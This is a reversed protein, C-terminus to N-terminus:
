KLLMLKKVKVFEDAVIRYFYVGSAATKEHMDKGNWQVTYRGAPKKGDILISILRGQTNFIEIKVNSTKPLAYNIMTVPNFPNPYNQDLSFASPLNSITQNEIGTTGEISIDDIYWKESNADCDAIFQFKFNENLAYAPLALSHQTYTSLATTEGPIGYVEIWYTGDYIKIILDDGTNTNDNQWWFILNINQGEFGGLNITNSEVAANSNLELSYPPSPENEGNSNIVPSGSIVTWKAPNLTTTEFQESWGTSSIIELTQQVTNDGASTIQVSATDSEGMTVSGPIQVKTIFTYANGASVSPIQTIQNTGSEDWITTPWENGSININYSDANEGSNTLTCSSELTQAPFGSQSISVSSLSFYYDMVGVTMDVQVLLESNSPDNSAIVLYNSYTTDSKLDKANMKVNINASSGSPVTGSNPTYSLWNGAGGGSSGAFVIANYLFQYDVTGPDSEPLVSFYVRNEKGVIISKKDTSIAYIQGDTVLNDWNNSVPVCTSNYNSDYPNPINNFLQHSTNSIYVQYATVGSGWNYTGTPNLGVLGALYTVHNQTTSEDYNNFTGASIYLGHGENIYQAVAMCENSTLYFNYGSNVGGWNDSIILMDAGSNVLDQYTINDKDLTTYDIVISQSGYSSYSSNLHNWTDTASSSYTGWGDLVVAKIVDSTNITEYKRITAELDFPESNTTLSLSTSQDCSGDSGPPSPNIIKAYENNNILIDQIEPATSSTTRNRNSIQFTLESGGKNSITLIQTTSDDINVTEDFSDPSVEIRPPVSILVDDIFWKDATSNAESEFKIKFDSQCAFSPIVVQKQMFSAPEADNGDHRFLEVWYSGEYCKVVLDDDTETGINQYYYSLAVNTYGSLDITKTEVADGNSTGGKLELSYPTSPESNGGTSVSPTGSIVTWKETDLTTAPFDEFWPLVDGATTNVTAFNSVSSNGASTATITATDAQEDPASEPVIVLVTIDVTGGPTLPGVTSIQATQAANWIEVPWSNGSVTLAYSDSNSGLNTITFTYAATDGPAATSSQEEPDFTVYYPAMTVTLHVPVNLLPNDPDNSSLAMRRSYRNGPELDKANIKLNIDASSGPSVNGSNPTYSLWNATAEGGSSGAFVIANYLFQYESTTPSSAPLFSAYVRNQKTIVTTQNNSSIAIIEGDTLASNWNNGTPVTTFSSPTFGGSINAALPHSSNQFSIFSASPGSSWNYSLSSNLGVLEALNDIQPQVYSNSNFTGSSMYLGHGENVYQVVAQCESTNLYFLNSSTYYGWNDPILLVDAGSNVLDQYTINDKALTTYDILIAQSGYSSYNSNLHNWASVGGSSYTGWGDLVVAKIVDSANITEYKKITTELDFPELSNTMSLPAARGSSGDMGAPDPPLTRSHLDNAKLVDQIAPVIPNNNITYDSIQFELNGAGINGITLTQATSDGANLTVDFSDPTVTIEPPAFLSVDDVFWDDFNTKGSDDSHYGAIVHFRIQFNTHYADEPLLVQDYTYSTMDPGSGPYVKLYVWDGVNNYYSIFLDDGAEPSDGGGTRQYYYGLAIRTYSSLDIAQSHVEDGVTTSGDLNLSYSASPEGMGSSNSTAPGINQIWKTSSLTSSPFNDSWPLTAGNGLSATVVKATGSQSANGVSTARVNVSDKTGNGAGTPVTVKVLVKYYSGSPISNLASIQGTGNSDWLTTTWHQGTVSLNYSDSNQGINRVFVPCFTAKGKAGSIEKRSPTLNVFYQSLAPTNQVATYADMKGYGWAYNPVSGTYSDSRASNQLIQKVQDSTLTPNKQLILAVCGAVHPASMSTGPMMVHVYDQNRYSSTMYDSADASLSSIVGFGSGAIEPKQRGTIHGPDDRTPGTSSFYALGNLVASSFSQNSGNYAKWSTKTSYAAVTIAKDAVGPSGVIEENSGSASSFYAYKGGGLQSIPIWSDFHGGQSITNGKVTVQWTGNKPPYYSYGDWIQIYCERDGNNPDIGGSANDIYIAGDSTSTANGSRDSGTDAYWTYGNPSTVTVRNKDNGQYWLTIIIFDNGAGSYSSYSPVKVEITKEAGNSVTGEAHIYEAYTANTGENGASITIVKGLGVIRDIAQETLGSGDHPGWQGGLSMNFSLAKGLEDAKVAAYCIADLEETESFGGDGSAANAGRVMLIDAEPAMGVYTHAPLSGGTASGDGAIIGMVHTGHGIDDKTRIAGTTTGDLENDIQAKTYEVGYDFNAPPKETGTATITQDWIYYIRSSGDGDNIFDDHNWDIGTDLAGALVGKGTYGSFSPPSTSYDGQHVDDAGCEPISADLDTHHIMSAQISTVNSLGALDKLRSIPIRVSFIDGVQGGVRAGSSELEKRDGRSKILLGVVPDKSELDRIEMFKAHMQLHEQPAGILPRVMSPIKRWTDRSMSKQADVTWSM